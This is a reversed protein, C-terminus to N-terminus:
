QRTQKMSGFVPGLISSVVGGTALSLLMGPMPDSNLGTMRVIFIAAIGGVVGAVLSGWPPAPDGPIPKDAVGWLRFLYTGSWGVILYILWDHM